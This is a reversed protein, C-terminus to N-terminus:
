VEGDEEGIEKMMDDFSGYEKVAGSRIENLAMELGSEPYNVLFDWGMRGALTKALPIDKSPIWFEAIDRSGYGVAPESLYALEPTQLTYGNVLPTMISAPDQVAKELARKIFANITIGEEAAYDAIASHTAPSIRINLTGSYSKKAPVGHQECFALYGEVAKHFEDTLEKISRGEFPVLGDIGEIKGRFVGDDESFSVSGIFGKYKLSNM